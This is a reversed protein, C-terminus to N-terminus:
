CSISPPGRHLDPAVLAIPNATACEAVCQRAVVRADAAVASGDVTAGVAIPVILLVTIALLAVWHRNKMRVEIMM